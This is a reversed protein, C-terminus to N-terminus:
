YSLHPYVYCLIGDDFDSHSTELTTEFCLHQLFNKILYQWRPFEKYVWRGHTHLPLKVLSNQSRLKRFFLQNVLIQTLTDYTFVSSSIQCRLIKISLSSTPISYQMTSILIELDRISNATSCLTMNDACGHPTDGMTYRHDLVMSTSRFSCRVSYPTKFCSMAMPGSRRNCM